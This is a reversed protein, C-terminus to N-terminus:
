TFSCTTSTASEMMRISVTASGWMRSAIRDLLVTSELHVLADCVDSEATVVKFGADELLDSFASTGLTHADIAPRLVGYVSPSAM